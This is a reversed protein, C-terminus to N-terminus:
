RMARIFHIDGAIFQEHTLNSDERVFKINHTGFSLLKVCSASANFTVSCSNESMSDDTACVVNDVLITLRVGAFTCTGQRNGHAYGNLFLLGQAFEEDVPINTEFVTQSPDTTKFTALGNKHLKAAPQTWAFSATGQSNSVMINFSGINLPKAVFIDNANGVQLVAVSREGITVLPPTGGPALNTGFIELAPKYDVLIETVSIIQVGDASDEGSEGPDGKDGKPGQPGPTLQITNVQTQLANVSSQLANLQGKVGGKGIGEDDGRRDDNGKGKGKDDAFAVGGFVNGPVAAVGGLQALVFCLAMGWAILYKKNRM